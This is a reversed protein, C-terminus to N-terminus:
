ITRLIPASYDSQEVWFEYRKSCRTAKRQQAPSCAASPDTPTNVQQTQALAASAAFLVLLFTPLGPGSWAEMVRPSSRRSMAAGAASGMILGPAIHQKRRDHAHLAAYEPTCAASHALTPCRTAIVRRRTREIWSPHSLRYSSCPFEIDRQHSASLLLAQLLAAFGALCRCPLQRLMTCPPPKSPRV